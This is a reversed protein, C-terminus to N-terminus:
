LNKIVSTITVQTPTDALLTISSHDGTFAFIGTCEIRESSDGVIVAFPFAAEVILLGSINTLAHGSDTLVVTESRMSKGSAHSVPVAKSQRMIGCNIRGSVKNAQVNLLVTADLPRFYSRANQHDAM